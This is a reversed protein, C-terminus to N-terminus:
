STARITTWAGSTAGPAACVYLAHAGNAQAVGTAGATGNITDTRGSGGFVTMSNAGNNTVYLIAGLVCPPLKVSDATTAVTGVVNLGYILQTASAQGGGAFATLTASTQQQNSENIAKALTYVNVDQTGLSPGTIGPLTFVARAQEIGINIGIGLAVLALAAVFNKLRM